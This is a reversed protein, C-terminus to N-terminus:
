LFLWLYWLFVVVYFVVLM